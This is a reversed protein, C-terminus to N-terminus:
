GYIYCLIINILILLLYYEIKFIGNCLDKGCFCLISDTISTTFNNKINSEICYGAYTDIFPRPKLWMQDWCERYVFEKDKYNGKWKACIGKNKIGNKCVRINARLLQFSAQFPSVDACSYIYNPITLGTENIINVIKYYDNSFKEVTKTQNKIAYYPKPSYVSFCSFCFTETENTYGEQNDLLLM